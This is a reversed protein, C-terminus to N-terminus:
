TFYLNTLRKKTFICPFNDWPFIKDGSIEKFEAVSSSPHSNTTQLHNPFKTPNDMTHFLGKCDM